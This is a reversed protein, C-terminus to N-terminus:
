MWVPHAGTVRDRHKTQALKRESRDPSQWGFPDVFM